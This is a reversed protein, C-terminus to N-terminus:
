NEGISVILDNLCIITYQKTKPRIMSLVIFELRQDYKAQTNDRNNRKEPHFEVFQRM